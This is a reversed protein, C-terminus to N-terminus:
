GRDALGAAHGTRPPVVAVAHDDGSRRRRVRDLGDGGYGDTLARPGLPMKEISQALYDIMAAKPLKTLRAAEAWPDQGLRALISLITLPSGNLETGIEAFLFENLGSNKLAFADPHSMAIKWRWTSDPPRSRHGFAQATAIIPMEPALRIGGAHEGSGATDVGSTIVTSSNKTPRISSLWPIGHRVPNSRSVLFTSSPRTNRGISRGCRMPHCWTCAERHRTAAQLSLAKGVFDSLEPAASSLFQRKSHSFGVDHQRQISFKGRCTAAVNACASSRVAFFVGGPLRSQGGRIRM